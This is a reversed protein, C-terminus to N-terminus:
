ITPGGSIVDGALRLSNVSKEEKIKHEHMDYIQFM